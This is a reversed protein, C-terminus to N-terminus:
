TEPGSRSRRWEPLPQIVPPEANARPWSDIAWKAGGAREVVVATAHPYRGDLFFGRSAPEAVHHHRLYGHMTLLVLLSTTNTAEDICDMQDPSGQGFQMGPLDNATGVRAGVIREFTQVARSIAHREAEANATGNGLDGAIEAIDGASLRVPTVIRCMYGHCVHVRDAEPARGHGRSFWNVAFASEAAVALAMVVCLHTLIRKQM